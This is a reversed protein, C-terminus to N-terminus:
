ALMNFLVEGVTGNSGDNRTFPAQAVLDGGALQTNLTVRADFRIQEIGAERLNGVSGDGYVLLLGDFVGDEDSISGDGNDDFKALESFGDEAGNQDGFLERGDNLIGDLNRDLALLADRGGVWGTRDQKGDADLDFWVGKGPPLTDLGNGDLDLILPDSQVFSGTRVEVQISVRTVTATFEGTDANFSISASQMQMAASYSMGSSSTTLSESSAVQMMQAQFGSSQTGDQISRSLGSAAAEADKRSLGLIQLAKVMEQELKELADDVAGRIGTLPDAGATPGASGRGNLGQMLDSAIDSLNLGAPPAVAQGPPLITPAVPAAATEGLPSAPVGAGFAALPDRALEALQGPIPGFM